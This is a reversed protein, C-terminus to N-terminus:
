NEENVEWPMPYNDMPEGRMFAQRRLEGIRKCEKYWAERKAKEEPSNYEALAKDWVAKVEKVRKEYELRSHGVNMDEELKQLRKKTGYIRM